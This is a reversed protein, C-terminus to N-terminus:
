YGDHITLRALSIMALAVSLETANHVSSSSAHTNGGGLPASDILADTNDAEARLRREVEEKGNKRRDERVVVSCTPSARARDHAGSAGRHRVGGELSVARFSAGRVPQATGSTSAVPPARAGGTTCRGRGGSRGGEASYQDARGLDARDQDANDQDASDASGQDARTRTRTRTRTGTKSRIRTKSGTGITRTRTGDAM